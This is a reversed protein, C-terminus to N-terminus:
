KSEYRFRFLHRNFGVTDRIPLIQPLPIFHLLFQKSKLCLLRKPLPQDHDRIYVHVYKYVHECKYVCIYRCWAQSHYVCHLRKGASKGLLYAKLLWFFSRTRLKPSLPFTGQCFVCFISWCLTFFNFLTFFFFFFNQGELDIIRLCTCLLVLIGNLPKILTDAREEPYSGLEAGKNTMPKPLSLETM